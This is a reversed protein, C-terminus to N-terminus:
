HEGEVEKLAKGINKIVNSNLLQQQDSETRAIELARKFVYAATNIAEFPLSPNQSLFTGLIGLFVNQHLSLDTDGTIIIIGGNSAVVEKDLLAIQWGTLLALEYVLKNKSNVFSTITLNKYREDLVKLLSMGENPTLCLITSAGNINRAKAFELPSHGKSKILNLGILLAQVSNDSIVLNSKINFIIEWILHLTEANKSIGPGIITLGTKCSFDLIEKLGKISLSGSLTEPLPLSMEKPLLNKYGSKLGVPYGLTLSGTGSRFAAEMIQIPINERGRSGAVVFINGAAKQYLHLPRNWILDSFILKKQHLTNM